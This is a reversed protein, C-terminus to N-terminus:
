QYYKILLSDKDQGIDMMESFRKSGDAGTFSLFTHIFLNKSDKNM